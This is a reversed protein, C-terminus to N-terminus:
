YKVLESQLNKRHIQVNKSNILLKVLLIRCSYYYYYITFKKNDTVLIKSIWNTSKERDIQVNKSDIM